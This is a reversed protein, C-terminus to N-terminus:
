CWFRWWSAKRSLGSASRKRCYELKKQEPLRLDAGLPTLLEVVKPYDKAHWAQEAEFRLRDASRKEVLVQVEPSLEAPQSPREAVEPFAFGCRRLFDVLQWCNGFPAGDGPYAVTPEGALLQPTWRVFYRQIAEPQLGPFLGALANADGAWRAAETANTRQDWYDPWPNFRTM